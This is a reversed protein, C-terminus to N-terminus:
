GSISNEYHEKQNNFTIIFETGRNEESNCIIDGDLVDVYKKVINLGLGTGQIQAANASRFFRKYLNQQDRKPIGIGQDKVTITLTHGKQEVTLDINSNEPSYKIANSLLNTLIHHFMSHDLYAIDNSEDHTYTVHQGNKFMYQMDQIIDSIVNNINFVTLNPKFNGQEIKDVSLFDGLVENLLNVSSLIRKIHKDRHPQQDEKTYKSLLYTSALIGSLPTRFEHSAVSVFRSKLQNLEKEKELAKTLEEDKRENEKMQRSLQEVTAKLSRTSEKVRQDLDANLQKITEEAEKNKQIDNVFAVYYTNGNEKYYGLSMEVPFETGDKKVGMPPEKPTIAINEPNLSFEARLEKHKKRLQTPVLLEVEKHLLEKGTYGFERLLYKNVAEIKGSENVVIVGINVNEFLASFNQTNLTNHTM